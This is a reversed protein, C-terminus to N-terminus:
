SPRVEEVGWRARLADLSTERISGHEFGGLGDPWTVVYGGDPHREWRDGEGDIVVAHPDVAHIGTGPRYVETLTLGNRVLHYDSGFNLDVSRAPEGDSLLVVGLKGDSGAIWLDGDQDVFVTGAPPLEDPLPVEQLVQRLTVVAESFDESVAPGRLTKVVSVPVEVSVTPASM